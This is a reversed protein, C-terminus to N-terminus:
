NPTESELGPSRFESFDPGQVSEYKTLNATVKSRDVPTMGMAALGKMLQSRESASCQGRADKALLRCTTLLWPRDAQSLVGPPLLAIIEYWFAKASRLTPPFDGIAGTFASKYKGDPGLDGRMAKRQPDKKFAGKAEQTATPIRHRGM